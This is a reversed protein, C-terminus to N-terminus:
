LEKVYSSKGIRYSGKGWTSHLIARAKKQSKSTGVKVYIGYKRKYIDVM